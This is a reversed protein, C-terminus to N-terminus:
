KLAYIFIRGTTAQTRGLTTRSGDKDVCCRPSGLDNGQTPVLSHSGRCWSEGPRLVQSSLVVKWGWQFWGHPLARGLACELVHVQHGRIADGWSTASGGWSRDVKLDKKKNTGKRKVDGRGAVTELAGFIVLEEGDGRDTQSCRGRQLPVCNSWVKLISTNCFTWSSAWSLSQHKLAGSFPGVSGCRCKGWHQSSPRCWAILPKEGEWGGVRGIPVLCSCPWGLADLPSEVAVLGCICINSLVENAGSVGLSKEALGFRATVSM